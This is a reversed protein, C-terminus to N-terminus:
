CLLYSEQHRPVLGRDRRSRRSWRDSRPSLTTQHQQSIQHSTCRQEARRTLLIPAPPKKPKSRSPTLGRAVTNRNLMAGADKRTNSVSPLHVAPSSAHVDAQLQQQGGAGWWKVRSASHFAQWVRGNHGRARHLAKKQSSVSNTMDDSNLPAGPPLHARRCREDQVAGHQTAQWRRVEGRAGVRAQPPHGQLKTM